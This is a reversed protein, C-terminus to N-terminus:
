VHIHMLIVVFSPQVASEQLESGPSEPKPHLLARSDSHQNGLGSLHQSVGCRVKLIQKLTVPSIAVCSCESQYELMLNKKRRKSYKLIVNLM